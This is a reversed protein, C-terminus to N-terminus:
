GFLNTKYKIQPSIKKPTKPTNQAKKKLTFLLMLVPSNIDRNNM